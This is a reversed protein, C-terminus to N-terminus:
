VASGLRPALIAAAAALLAPMTLLPLTWDDLATIAATCAAPGIAFGFFGIISTGATAEAVREAPTVRALEALAIGQGSSATV